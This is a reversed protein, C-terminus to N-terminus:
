KWRGIEAAARVIAYRVVSLDDENNARPMQVSGNVTVYNEGFCVDMKLKVVLM